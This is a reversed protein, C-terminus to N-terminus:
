RGRAVVLTGAIKDHFGQNEPDVIIWLLGLWLLLEVVGYLLWLRAGFACVNILFPTAYVATRLVARRRELRRGDSRIVWLRLAMMGLTRSRYALMAMSYAVIALDAILYRWWNAGTPESSLVSGDPFPVGLVRGVAPVFLVVYVPAIVVTDLAAAVFRRLFGATVMPVLSAGDDAASM